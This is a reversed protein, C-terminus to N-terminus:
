VVQVVEVVELVIDEEFIVVRGCVVILVTLSSGNKVDTLHQLLFTALIRM